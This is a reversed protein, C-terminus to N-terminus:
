TLPVVSAAPDTLDALGPECGPGMSPRMADGQESAQTGPCARQDGLSLSGSGVHWFLSLQTLWPM